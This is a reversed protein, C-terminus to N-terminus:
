NGGDDTDDNNDDDDWADDDSDSAVEAGEGAFRAWVPFAGDVEAWASEYAGVPEFEPLRGASIGNALGVAANRNKRTAVLAWGSEPDDPKRPNARLEAAVTGWKTVKAGGRTAAPPPAQWNLAM